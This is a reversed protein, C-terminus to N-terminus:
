GPDIGYDRRAGARSVYGDILDESLSRPDRQEPAGYGGSGPAQVV